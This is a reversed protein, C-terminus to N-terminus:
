HSPSRLLRKAVTEGFRPKWLIMDMTKMPPYYFGHPKISLGKYFPLKSLYFESVKAVSKRVLSYSRAYRMKNDYLGYKKISKVVYQDYAPTCGLTGMLIKTALTDTVSAKSDKARYLTWLENCAEILTSAHKPDRYFDIPHLPDQQPLSSEWLARPTSKDLLYDVVARHIKYDHQLLFSSERYMGWSALYFALSMGSHDRDEAGPNM